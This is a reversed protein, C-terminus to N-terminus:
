TTGPVFLLIIASQGAPVKDTVQHNFAAVLPLPIKRNQSLTQRSLLKGFVFFAHLAHVLAPAHTHTTANNQSTLSRLSSLALWCLERAMVIVVTYLIM